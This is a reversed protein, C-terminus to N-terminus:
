RITPSPCPWADVAVPPLPDMWESSIVTISLEEIAQDIQAPPSSSAHFPTYLVVTIAMNNHIFDTDFMLLDRMMVVFRWDVLSLEFVEFQLERFDLVGKKKQFIDESKPKWVM